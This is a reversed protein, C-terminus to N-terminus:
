SRTVRHGKLQEDFVERAARRALLRVLEVLRPDVGDGGCVLIMDPEVQRLLSKQRQQNGRKMNAGNPVSQLFM